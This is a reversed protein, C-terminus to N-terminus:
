RIYSTELHRYSATASKLKAEAETKFPGGMSKMLPAPQSHMMECKHTAPDSAVYLEEAFAPAAFAAM